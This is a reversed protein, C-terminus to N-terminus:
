GIQRYIKSASPRPPFTTFNGLKVTYRPHQAPSDYVLFTWAVVWAVSLGGTFYFVAEWGLNEIVLAAAANFNLVEHGDRWRM